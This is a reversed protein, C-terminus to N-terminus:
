IGLRLYTFKSGFTSMEIFYQKKILWMIPAQNLYVLFGKRYNRTMTYAVHNSSAFVMQNVPGGRPYIM